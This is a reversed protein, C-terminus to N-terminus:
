KEPATDSSSATAKTTSKKAAPATVKEWGQSEHYEVQDPRVDITGGAPHKMKPM